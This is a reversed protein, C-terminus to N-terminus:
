PICCEVLLCYKDQGYYLLVTVTALAFSRTSFNKSCPRKLVIKCCESGFSRFKASITITIFAAHLVCVSYFWCVARWCLMHIRISNMGNLRNENIWLIHQLSYGCSNINKVIFLTIWTSMLIKPCSLKPWQSLFTCVFM